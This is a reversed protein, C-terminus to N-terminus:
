DESWRRQRFPVRNPMGTLADHHALYAIRAEARKRETIDEHATVWGGDKMPQHSIAIVRGDGRETVTLSPEGSAAIALREEIHRWGSEGPYINRIASVSTVSM